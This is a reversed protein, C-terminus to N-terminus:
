TGVNPQLTDFRAGDMAAIFALCLIQM